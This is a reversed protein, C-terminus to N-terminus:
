DFVKGQSQLTNELPQRPNITCTADWREESDVGKETTVKHLGTVKILTNCTIKEFTVTDSVTRFSSPEDQYHFKSTVEIQNNTTTELDLATAFSSLNASIYISTGPTEYVGLIYYERSEAIEVICGEGSYTGPAIWKSVSAQVEAGTVPKAQVMALSLTTSFFTLLCSIAKM